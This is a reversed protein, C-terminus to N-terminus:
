AQFVLGKVSYGLSTCLTVLNIHFDSINKHCFVTMNSITVTRIIRLKSPCLLSWKMCVGISSSSSVHLLLALRNVINNCFEFGLM